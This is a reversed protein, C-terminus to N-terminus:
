LAQWRGLRHLHMSSHGRLTSTAQDVIVQEEAGSDEDMREATPACIM